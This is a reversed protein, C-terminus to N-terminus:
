EELLTQQTATPAKRKREAKKFTEIGLRPYQLKKGSLLEQITLIQLRPFRQDKYHTPSKYSGASIAEEVMPKTPEQLTIFAGIPAKEAELVGRLYPLSDKHRM